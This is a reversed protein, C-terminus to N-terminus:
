DRDTVPDAGIRDGIEEIAAVAAPGDAPGDVRGGAPGAAAVGRVIAALDGAAALVPLPRRQGAQRWM